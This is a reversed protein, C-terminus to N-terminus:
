GNKQRRNEILKRLRSPENKLGYKIFLEYRFKCYEFWGYIFFGICVFYGLIMALFCWDPFQRMPNVNLDDEGSKGVMTHSWDDGPSMIFTVEGTIRNYTIGFLGTLLIFILGSVAILILPFRYEAWPREALFKNKKKRMWTEMRM